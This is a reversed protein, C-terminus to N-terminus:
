ALNAFCSIAILFIKYFSLKKFYTNIKGSHEYDLSKFIQVYSFSPHNIKIIIQM